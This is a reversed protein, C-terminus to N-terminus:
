QANTYPAGDSFSAPLQPQASVVAFTILPIIAVLPAIYKLQMYSFYVASPFTRSSRTHIPRSLDAEYSEASTRPASCQLSSM